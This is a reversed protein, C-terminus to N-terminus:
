FPSFVQVAELRLGHHEALMYAGQKHSTAMGIPHAHYDDHVHYRSGKRVTTGGWTPGVVRRSKDGYLLSFVTVTPPRDAQCVLASRLGSTALRAEIQEPWLAVDAVAQATDDWRLSAFPRGHVPVAAVGTGHETEIIVGRVPGVGAANPLHEIPITVVNGGKLSPGIPRTHSPLDTLLQGNTLTIPLAFLMRIEM